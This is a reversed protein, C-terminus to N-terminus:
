PSYPLARAVARVTEPGLLHLQQVLVAHPDLGLEELPVAGEWDGRDLQGVFAALLDEYGRAHESSRRAGEVPVLALMDALPIRPDPADRLAALQARRELEARVSSPLLGAGLLDGLREFPGARLFRGADAIHQAEHISLAALVDAEYREGAEAVAALTLRESCDLPESLSRRASGDPAPLPALVPGGRMSRDARADWDVQDADLFVTHVLGAGTFRAGAAAAQGPVRLRRVLCEDYGGDFARADDVHRRALLDYCTLEPPRGIARGSLVFLGPLADALEDTQLMEGFLGFSRRPLEALRPADGLPAAAEDLTRLFDDFDGDDGEAAARYASRAALDWEATLRLTLCAASDTRVPDLDCTSEPDPPSLPSGARAWLRRQWAFSDPTPPGVAALLSLAVGDEGRRAALSALLGARARQWRSGRSDDHELLQWARREADEQPIGELLRGLLELGEPIAQGEAVDDLLGWVAHHLRGTAVALRRALWRMRPGETGVTDLLQELASMKREALLSEAEASVSARAGAGLRGARRATARRRVGTASRRSLELWLAASEGHRGREAELEALAQEDSARYRAALWAGDDLAAVLAAPRGDRVSMVDREARERFTPDAIEEAALEARELDGLRLALWVTDIPEDDPHPLPRSPSGCAAVM